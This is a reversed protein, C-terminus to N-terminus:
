ISIVHTFSRKLLNATGIVGAAIILRDCAIKTGDDLTVECIKDRIKFTKALQKYEKYNFNNKLKNYLLKITNLGAERYDDSGLM